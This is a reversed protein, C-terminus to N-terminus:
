SQRSKEVAERIQDRSKGKLSEAVEDAKDLQKYTSINIDKITSQTVEEKLVARERKDLLRKILDAVRKIADGISGLATLGAWIGM